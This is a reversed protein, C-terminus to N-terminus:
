LIPKEAGDATSQGASQKVGTDKESLNKSLGFLSSGIIKLAKNTRVDATKVNEIEHELVFELCDVAVTSSGKMFSSSM